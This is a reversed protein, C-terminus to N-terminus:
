NNSEKAYFGGHCDEPIPFDKGLNLLTRQKVRGDVRTSEVIRYSYARGQDLTKTKTRRIYM